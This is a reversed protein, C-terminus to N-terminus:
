YCNPKISKKPNKYKIIKPSIDLLYCLREARTQAAELTDAPYTRCCGSIHVTVAFVKGFQSILISDAMNFGGKLLALCYLLKVYLSYFGIAGVLLFREFRRLNLWKSRGNRLVM